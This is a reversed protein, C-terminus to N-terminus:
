QCSSPVFCRVSPNDVEDNARSHEGDAGRPTSVPRRRSRPKGLGSAVADIVAHGKRTPWLHLDLAIM